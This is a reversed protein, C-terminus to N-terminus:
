RCLLLAYFNEYDATHTIFDGRAVDGDEYRKKTRQPGSGNGISRFNCLRAYARKMSVPDVVLLLERQEDSISRRVGDM